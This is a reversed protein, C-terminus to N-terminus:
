RKYKEIYYGKVPKNKNKANTITCEALNVEQSIEKLTRFNKNNWTYKYESEFENINISTDTSWYSDKYITKNKIARLIAGPDFNYKNHFEQKSGLVEIM